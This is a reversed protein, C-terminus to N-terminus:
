RDYNAEYIEKCGFVSVIFSRVLIEFPKLNASTSRTSDFTYKVTSWSNFNILLTFIQLLM